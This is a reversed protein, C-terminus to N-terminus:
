ADVPPRIYPELREIAERAMDDPRFAHDLVLGSLEIGCLRMAGRDFIRPGEIRLDTRGIKKALDKPYWLDDNCWIFLARPPADQMQRTTTGDRRVKQTYQTAPM